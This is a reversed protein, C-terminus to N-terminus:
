SNKTAEAEGEDKGTDMGSMDKLKSVLKAITQSGLKLVFESGVPKSDETKPALFLRRGVLEPDIANIGETSTPKRTELDVKALKLLTEKYWVETSGDVECLVYNSEGFKVPFEKPLLSDFVFENVESM